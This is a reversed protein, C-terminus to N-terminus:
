LYLLVNEVNAKLKVGFSKLPKRNTLHSNNKTDFSSNQTCRIHSELFRILSDSAYSKDNQLIDCMEVSTKKQFCSLSLHHRYEYAFSHVQMPVNKKWMRWVVVLLGKGKKRRLKECCNCAKRKSQTLLSSRPQWKEGRQLSVIGLRDWSAGTPVRECTRARERARPGAEMSGNRGLHSPGRQTQPQATGGDKQPGEAGMHGETPWLAREAPSQGRFRHKWDWLAEGGFPPLLIPLKHAPPEKFIIHWKKRDTESWKKKTDKEKEKDSIIKSQLHPHQCIHIVLQLTLSTM